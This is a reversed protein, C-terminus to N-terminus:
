IVKYFLVAEIKVELFNCIKVLNSLNPICLGNEWNYITKTSNIKLVNKFDKRTFGKKERNKEISEGIKKNDFIINM